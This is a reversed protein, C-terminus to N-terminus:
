PRAEGPLAADLWVDDLRWQGDRRDAWDRVRPSLAWRHPLHVVPVVWYGSLLNHESEYAAELSSDRFQLTPRHLAAAVNALAVQPNASSLSIKVLVTDARQADATLQVNFGVDRANLAIREAILRLEPDGTAVALTIPTPTRAEARLQRARAQDHQEAFLFEYGAVWNPLLGTAPLAQGQLLVSAITERDIGLSLAHRVREDAVSPNGSFTLTILDVPQSTSVKAEAAAQGAPVEVLDTRGLQLALQQDRYDQGLTLEISDLYPRGAWSDEFATFVVRKGPQWDSILFPGTGELKNAASRRSIATAPAALQAGLEPRPADCQFVVSDGLASSKCGAVVNALSSVAIQPTLLEGDHFKVDSRLWFQWRRFTPDSTWSRALRPQLNGRDDEAVLSDFVLPVFRAADSNEIAAPNLGNMVGRIAIRLTGGYRPRTAGGCVGCLLIASSFVLLPLATRKM